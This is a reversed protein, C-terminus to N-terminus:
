TELKLNKNRLVRLWPIHVFVILCILYCIVFCPQHLLCILTYVYVCTITNFNGFILFVSMLLTIQTVLYITYLSYNVIATM